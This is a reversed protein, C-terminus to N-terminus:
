GRDFLSPSVKYTVTITVTQSAPGCFPPGSVSVPVKAGKVTFMGADNYNGAISVPALPAFTITCPWNNTDILGAKPLGVVLHDGTANPEPLGEDGAGANTFDKETLTWPGNLTSSKFSDTFGINDNCTKGTGDSFTPLGVSFKLTTGTRGAMRSATCTIVMPPSTSPVSIVVKATTAAVGTGTAVNFTDAGDETASPSAHAFPIGVVLAACAIGVLLASARLRGM